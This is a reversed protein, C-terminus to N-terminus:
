GHRRRGRAQSPRRRQGQARGNGSRSRPGPRTAEYLRLAQELVDRVPRGTQQAIRQCDSYEPAAKFVGPAPEAVKIRIDEGDVRVVESRRPLVARAVEAMRVGLATTERLILDAVAHAKEPTALAGLVVGPRGRKMIVPTLTVDLAGVAFLRDVVSEYAQPQLDDLNTEIQAILEREAPGALRVDGVFVRLANAWGEPDATGAGYGVTRPELLPMPGFERTLTRLLALGTPTTMEYRPGASYVPIGTALAAVAPGPVPLRGHSFAVFGSGLNVPSASVSSVGLLRAGLVGGVVDVLSDVVGIEHFQVRGLGVRHAASEARGLREFVALSTGKVESPLRSSSVIRRIASLSLPARFGESVLVEVRTAGLTGRTVRTARLAYGKVKLQALGAELEKMPVGADVLAGLVMDGSIGSFCDFHLHVAM